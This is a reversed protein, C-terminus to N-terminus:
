FRKEGQSVYYEALAKIENDSLEEMQPKMKEPQWREGAKYHRLQTLLYEKWQGALIGADDLVLSGGESHCKDCRREHIKKGLEALEQDVAQDAPVFAQSSFYEALEMVEEESLENALACHDDAPPDEAEDFEEKACPRAEEKYILLQNEIFFASAGAITPIEGESSVGNEGHCEACPKASDPAAAGLAVPVVPATVVALCLTRLVIGTLMKM